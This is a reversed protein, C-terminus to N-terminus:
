MYSLYCMPLAGIDAMTNYDGDDMARAKLVQVNNHLLPKQTYTPHSLFHTQLACRRHTLFPRVYSLLANANKETLRQNEFQAVGPCVPVPFLHSM